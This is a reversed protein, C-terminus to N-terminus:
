FLLYCSKLCYIRVPDNMRSTSDSTLDFFLFHSSANSTEDNENHYFAIPYIDAVTLQIVPDNHAFCERLHTWVVHNYISL